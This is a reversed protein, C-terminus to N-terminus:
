PRPPSNTGGGPMPKRLPPLTPSANDWTLNTCWKMQELKEDSCGNSCEGIIDRCETLIRVLEELSKVQRPLRLKAAWKEVLMHEKADVEELAGDNSKRRQAWDLTGKSLNEYLEQIGKRRMEITEAREEVQKKQGNLRAAEKHYSDCVEPKGEPYTCVNKNHEEIAGDVAAADLELKASDNKYNQMAGKLLDATSALREEEKGLKADEDTLKEREAKVPELDKKVEELVSDFKSLTGRPGATRQRTQQPAAAGVAALLLSAALAITTTTTKM